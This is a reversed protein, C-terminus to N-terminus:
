AHAEALHAAAHEPDPAEAAILTGSGHTTYLEQLLAGARLGSLVHVRPVGGELAARAAAAKVRMGGTLAGREALRQLEVLSLSSTLTSPDAPDTLVGDVESLLLLKQAGLEVALRAAADDANVNLFGGAGDSAPPSLVPVIGEALLARLPGAGVSVLDGVAGLDVIEGAAQGTHGTHVTHVPPRKRAVLIGATGACIGLARVGAADLAAALEANLEGLTAQRLARLAKPTTVRRGDLKRPEEGMARQLADTQPGAGHVVVLRPGLSEVLALEAAVTAIRAPRDLCAGGVKVVFLAGRHARLYHAAKALDIM